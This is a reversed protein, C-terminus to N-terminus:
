FYWLYAGLGVGVLIFILILWLWWMTKKEEIVENESILTQPSSLEQRIGQPVQQM